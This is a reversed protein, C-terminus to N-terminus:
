VNSYTKAAAPKGLSEKKERVMKSEICITIRRDFSLGDPMDCKKDSAMESNHRVSSM